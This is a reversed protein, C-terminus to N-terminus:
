LKRITYTNNSYSSSPSTNCSASYYSSSVTWGGPLSSISCVGSIQTKGATNVLNYTNHRYSAYASTNCASGFYYGTVVWGSPPMRVDCAGNFSSRGSLNEITYTNYDSGAYPSTRCAYSYYISTVAYGSPVSLSSCLATGQETITTQSSEIPVQKSCAALVVGLLILVYRKM